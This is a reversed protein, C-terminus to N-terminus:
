EARARVGLLSALTKNWADVCDAGCRRVWGPLVSDTLLQRRRQEDAASVPVVVM